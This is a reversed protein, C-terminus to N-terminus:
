SRFYVAFMRRIKTWKEIALELGMDRFVSMFKILFIFPECRVYSQPKLISGSMPTTQEIKSVKKQFNTTLL